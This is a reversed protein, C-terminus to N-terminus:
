KLFQRSPIKVEDHTELLTQLQENIIDKIYAPLHEEHCLLTM